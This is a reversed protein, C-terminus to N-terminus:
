RGRGKYSNVARVVMRATETPITLRLGLTGDDRCVVWAREPDGNVPVVKWPRGWRDPKPPGAAQKRDIQKLWKRVQSVTAVTAGCTPCLGDEDVAVGPGCQPCLLRDPKPHKKPKTKM